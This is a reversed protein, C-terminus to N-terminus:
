AAVPRTVTGWLHNAPTTDSGVTVDASSGSWDDSPSASGGGGGTVTLAGGAFDVDIGIEAYAAWSLSGVDTNNGDARLRVTTGSVLALYNNADLYFVYATTPAAATAYLPQVTVSWHGGLLDAPVSAAAITLEEAGRTTPSGTARINSSIFGVEHETQFEAIEITRAAADTANVVLDQPPVGGTGIDSVLFAFRQWTTTISLDGSALLSSGDKSRMGIRASQASAARMWCSVYAATANSSSGSAIDSPHRARDTASATMELTAAASLGDPGTAAGTTLTPSGEEIWTGFATEVCQNARAGEILVAGDSYIRPVNTALYNAAGSAQYAWASRPDEFAAEGTRAFTAASYDLLPAWTASAAIPDWPLGGAQAVPQGRADLIVPKAPPVIM